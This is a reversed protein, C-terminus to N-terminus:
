LAHTRATNFPLAHCCWSIASVYRDTSSALHHYCTPTDTSSLSLMDIHRDFDCSSSLMDIHGLECTSTSSADTWSVSDLLKLYCSSSIMVINRLRVTVTEAWSVLHHYWSSTDTWSVWTSEELWSSLMLQTHWVSRRTVRHIAGNTNFLTRVQKLQSTCTSSLKMSVIWLIIGHQHTHGGWLINIAHRHTLRVRM